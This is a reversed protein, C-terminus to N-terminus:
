FSILEVHLLILPLNEYALTNRLHHSKIIHFTDLKGSLEQIKLMLLYTWRQFLTNINNWYLM